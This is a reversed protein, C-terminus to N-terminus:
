SRGSRPRARWVAAALASFLAGGVAALLYALPGGRTYVVAWVAMGIAVQLTYLAALTWAWPRERFFGYSLSGYILWHLPETLKAAWGRLMYGFWVEQAQAISQTFLKGFVDYPLYLFTMYLSFLFVGSVPLPYRRLLMGVRAIAGGALTSSGSDDRAAM